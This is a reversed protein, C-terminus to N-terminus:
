SDQEKGKRTRYICAIIGIIAFGAAIGIPKYQALWELANHIKEMVVLKAQMVKINTAVSGTLNFSSLALGVLIGIIVLILVVKTFGSFNNSPFM